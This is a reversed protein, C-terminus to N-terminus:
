KGYKDFLIKEVDLNYAASGNKLAKSIKEDLSSIEAFPTLPM